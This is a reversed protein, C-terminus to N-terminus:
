DCGCCGGTVEGTPWLEKKDGGDDDDDDTVETADCSDTSENCEEGPMCPDGSHSCQDNKEDCSEDGNCFFFLM